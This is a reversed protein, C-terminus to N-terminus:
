KSTRCFPEWDHSVKIYSNTLISFCFAYHVINRAREKLEFYKMPETKQTVVILNPITTSSHRIDENEKIDVKKPTQIPLKPPLTTYSNHKAKQQIQDM